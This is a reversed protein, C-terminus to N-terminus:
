TLYFRILPLGYLPTEPCHASFIQVWVAIFDKWGVSCTEVFSFNKARSAGIHM